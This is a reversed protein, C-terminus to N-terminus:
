FYLLFIGKSFLSAIKKGWERHKVNKRETEDRGKQEMGIRGM